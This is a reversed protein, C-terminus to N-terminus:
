VWCRMACRSETPLGHAAEERLLARLRPEAELEEVIEFGLREYFPANFAVDRFTTLTLSTTQENRAAYAMAHRMLQTGVGEGQRAAHVALECIHLETEAVTEACLFGAILSADAAVWSTGGAVFGQHDEISMVSDDAVWAFEPYARFATGASREIAPLMPVDAVTTLRIEPM